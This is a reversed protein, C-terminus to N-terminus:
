HYTRSKLILTKLNFVNSFKFLKYIGENKGLNQTALVSFNLCYTKVIIISPVLLVRSRDKKLERHIECLFSMKTGRFNEFTRLYVRPKANKM